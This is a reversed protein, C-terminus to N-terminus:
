YIKKKFFTAVLEDFSTPPNFHFHTLFSRYTEDLGDVIYGIIKEEEISSGAARLADVIARVEMLYESMLMVGAKKKTARLKTQLFKLHINCLPSLFRYLLLWAEKSIVYHLIM